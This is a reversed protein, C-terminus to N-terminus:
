NRAATPKGRGKGGSKRGTAKKRQNKRAATSANDNGALTTPPSKTPPTTPTKTATRKWTTNKNPIVASPAVVTGPTKNSKTADGRENKAKKRKPTATDGSSASKRKLANKTEGLKAELSHIRRYLEGTKKEVDDHILGTLTPRNAPREAEVVAAIRAAAHELQPEVTAKTIRRDQANDVVRAHFVELPTIIGSDLLTKLASIVADRRDIMPTMSDTIKKPVNDDATITVIERIAANTEHHLLSTARRFDNRPIIFGPTVM